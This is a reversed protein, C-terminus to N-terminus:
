SLFCSARLISPRVISTCVKVDGDMSISAFTTDDRPNFTLHSVGGSNEDFERTCRWGQGWYWLKTSTLAVSSSTLMFSDTQQVALSSVPHGGHAEFEVVKAKTAYAYVHVWGNGDGVALWQQQAGAIFKVSNVPCCTGDAAKLMM